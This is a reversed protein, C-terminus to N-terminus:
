YDEHWALKAATMNCGYDVYCQIMRRHVLESCFREVVFILEGVPLAQNMDYRGIIYNTATVMYASQSTFQVQSAWVLAERVHAPLEQFTKFSFRFKFNPNLVSASTKGTGPNIVMRM